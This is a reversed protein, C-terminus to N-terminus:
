PADNERANITLAPKWSGLSLNPRTEFHPEAWTAGCYPCGSADDHIVTGGCAFCIADRWRIATLGGHCHVAEVTEISPHITTTRHEGLWHVIVAGDTFVCGQAVTGVGSVGTVDAKRDLYFRRM